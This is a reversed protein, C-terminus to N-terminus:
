QPAVPKADIPESASAGAAIWSEILHIEAASLPNKGNNPMFDDDDPTLTVRRILESDEPYWPEIESGGKGGRMLAEFSDLRLGGKMKAPGHCSVCSRDFLPQIRSAYVAPKTGAPRAPPPKPAPPAPIGLWSRLRGPMLETLFTEGHTLKSGEHGTWTLLALSALLLPWYVFALGWAGGPPSRRVAATALCLAALAVGGWMHHTVTPGSYGGSWGLLWGDAAAVLAGAAALGLLFGASARLEPRRAVWGVIELIPVAVLLGIPLHVLIPHFRGLFQATSGHSTGTPPAGLALVALGFILLFGLRVIGSVAKKPKKPDAM